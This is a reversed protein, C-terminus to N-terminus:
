QVQRLVRASPKHAPYLVRINRGCGCLVAGRLCSCSYYTPQYFKAAGQEIEKLLVERQEPRDCCNAAKLTRQLFSFERFDGFRRVKRRRFFVHVLHVRCCVKRASQGNLENAKDLATVCRELFYALDM